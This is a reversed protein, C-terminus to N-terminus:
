ALKRCPRCTSTSCASWAFVRYHVGSVWYRRPGVEGDPLSALYPALPRGFKEFVESTTELSVSGVLLLDSM